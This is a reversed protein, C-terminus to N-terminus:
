NHRRRCFTLIVDQFRNEFCQTHKQLTTFNLHSIVYAFQQIFFERLRDVIQRRQSQQADHILQKRQKEDFLFVYSM